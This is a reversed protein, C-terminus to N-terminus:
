PRRNLEHQLHKYGRELQRTYMRQRTKEFRRAREAAWVIAAAITTDEYASKDYSRGCINCMLTGTKMREACVVCKNEVM